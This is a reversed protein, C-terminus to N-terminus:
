VASTPLAGLDHAGNRKLMRFLIEAPSEDTVETELGPEPQVTAAPAPTPVPLSFTFGQMNTTTTTTTAATATTPLAKLLCTGACAGTGNNTINCPCKKATNSKHNKAGCHPCPTPKKRPKKPKAPGGTGDDIGKGYVEETGCREDHKKSKLERQRKNKKENYAKGSRRKSRLARHRIVGDAEAVDLASLISHKPLGAEQCVAEDILEIWSKDEKHTNYMYREAAHCDALMMSVVYDTASVRTGAPGHALYM